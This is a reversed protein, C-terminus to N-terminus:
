ETVTIIVDASRSEHSEGIADISVILLGTRNGTTLSQGDASIMAGESTGDPWVASVIRKSKDREIDCLQEISVSSDTKITVNERPTLTPVRSLYSSVGYAGIAFIGIIPILAALVIAVTFKRNKM